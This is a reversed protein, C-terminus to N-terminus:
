RGIPQAGEAKLTNNIFRAAKTGIIQDYNRNEEVIIVIHDYVPLNEPWALSAADSKDAFECSAFVFFLLLLTFQKM